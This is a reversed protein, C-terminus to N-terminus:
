FHGESAFLFLPNRVHFANGGSTTEEVRSSDTRGALGPWPDGVIRAFAPMHTPARRLAPSLSEPRPRLVFARGMGNGDTSVRFVDLRNTAPVREEDNGAGIELMSVWIPVGVSLNAGGTIFDCWTANGAMRVADDAGGTETEMTEARLFRAAFPPSDLKLGMLGLAGADVGLDKQFYPAISGSAVLATGQWTVARDIEHGKIRGWAIDGIAFLGGLVALYLPLVLVTEM